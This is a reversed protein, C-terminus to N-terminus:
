PHHCLNPFGNPKPLIDADKQVNKENRYSVDLPFVTVADRSVKTM